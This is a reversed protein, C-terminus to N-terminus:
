WPCGRAIYWGFLRVFAAARVRQDPRLTEMAAWLDAETVHHLDDTGHRERLADVIAACVVIAFWAPEQGSERKLWLSFRAALEMTETAQGTPLPHPRHTAGSDSQGLNLM